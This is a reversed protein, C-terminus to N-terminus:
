FHAEKLVGKKKVPVNDPSETVSADLAALLTFLPM